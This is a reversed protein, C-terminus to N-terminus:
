FNFKSLKYRFYIIQPKEEDLKIELKIKKHYFYM